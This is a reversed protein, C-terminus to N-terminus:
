WLFFNENSTTYEESRGSFPIVCVANSDTMVFYLKMDILSLKDFSGVINSFLKCLFLFYQFRNNHDLIVKYVSYIDINYSVIFSDCHNNEVVNAGSVRMPFWFINTVHKLHAPM